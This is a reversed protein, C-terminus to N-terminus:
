ENVGNDCGKEEEPQPESVFSKLEMEEHNEQEGFLFMEYPQPPLM